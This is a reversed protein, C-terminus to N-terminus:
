LLPALPEWNREEANVLKLRLLLLDLESGERIQGMVLMPDTLPSQSPAEGGFLNFDTALETKATTTNPEDTLRSETAADNDNQMPVMDPTGAEFMKRKREAASGQGAGSLPDFSELM